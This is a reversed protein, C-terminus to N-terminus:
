YYENQILLHDKKLSKIKAPKWVSTLSKGSLLRLIYRKHSVLDTSIRFLNSNPQEYKNKQMTNFFVKIVELTISNKKKKESISWYKDYYFGSITWVEYKNFNVSFAVLSIKWSSIKPFQRLLWHDEGQKWYHSLIFFRNIKALWIYISPFFSTAWKVQM